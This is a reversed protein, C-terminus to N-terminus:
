RPWIAQDDRRVVSKDSDQGYEWASIEVTLRRGDDEGAMILAVVPMTAAVDVGQGVVPRVM